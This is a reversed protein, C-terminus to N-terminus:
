LTQEKILPIFIETIYALESPPIQIGFTENVYRLHNEILQILKSHEKTFSKLKQYDLPEKRIVRELMSTTHTIFKVLISEDSQIHLEDLIGNLSVLLTDVAKQPNIFTLIEGLFDDTLRQIFQSNSAENEIVPNEFNEFADLSITYNADSSRLEDVIKILMPLNLGTMVATKIGTAEYVASQLSTFPTMDTLILVGSGQNVFHARDYIKLM